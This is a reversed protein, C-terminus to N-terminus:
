PNGCGLGLNAGEPVAALEAESYGMERKRPRRAQLWTAVAPRLQGVARRILLLGPSGAMVPM